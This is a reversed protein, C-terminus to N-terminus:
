LEELEMEVNLYKVVEEVDIGHVFCAESLSEMQSAPCQICGMGFMMLLRASDPYEVLIDGVLMDASVPKKAAEEAM